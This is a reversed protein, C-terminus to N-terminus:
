NRSDLLCRFRLSHSTNRRDLRLCLFRLLQWLSDPSDCAPDRQARDNSDNPPVDGLFHILQVGLSVGRRFLIFEAIFRLFRESYKRTVLADIIRVEVIEIPTCAKRTEDRAVTPAPPKLETCSAERQPASPPTSM